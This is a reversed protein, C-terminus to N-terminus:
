AVDFLPVDDPGPLRVLRHQYDVLLAYDPHDSDIGDAVLTAAYIDRLWPMAASLVEFDDENWWRNNGFATAGNRYRVAAEVDHEDVWTHVFPSSDVSVDVHLSESFYDTLYDLPRRFYDDACYDDDNPLSLIGARQTEPLQDLWGVIDVDVQSRVQFEQVLVVPAREISALTMRRKVPAADAPDLLSDNERLWPVEAVLKEYSDESWSRSSRLRSDFDISQSSETFGDFRDLGHWVGTEETIRSLWVEPKEFDEYGSGMDFEIYAERETFPMQQFFSIMDVQIEVDISASLDVCIRSARVSPRVSTNM